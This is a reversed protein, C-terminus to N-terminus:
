QKQQAPVEEEEADKMVGCLMDDGEERLRYSVVAEAIVAATESADEQWRSSNGSFDGTCKWLTSEAADGADADSTEADSTATMVAAGVEASMNRETEKKKEAKKRGKKEREEKKGANKKEEAM